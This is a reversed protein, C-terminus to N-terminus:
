LILSKMNQESFTMQLFIQQYAAANGSVIVVVALYVRKKKSKACNTERKVGSKKRHDYSKQAMM